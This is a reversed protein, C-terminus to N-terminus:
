RAFGSGNGKPVLRTKWFLRSYESEHTNENIALTPNGNLLSSRRAPVSMDSFPLSNDLSYPHELFVPLSSVSSNPISIGLATDVLQIGSDSALNFKYNMGILQELM